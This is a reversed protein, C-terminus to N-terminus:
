DRVARLPDIMLVREPAQPLVDYPRGSESRAEIGARAALVAAEDLAPQSFDLGTVRTGLRALSLTDLGGHCQLHLLRKGAVPPLEAHEFYRLKSQGALFQEAGYFDSGAHLPAREDWHARNAERFHEWGEHAM